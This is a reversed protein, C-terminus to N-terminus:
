PNSGAAATAQSRLREAITEEVSADRSERYIANHFLHLKNLLYLLQMKESESLNGATLTAVQGMGSFSAFLVGRGKGTLSLRKSRKDTEDDRQEVLGNKLLRKIIEIGTTKEHLHQDILETKTLSGRANLVALYTFDDATVLPSHELMKKSYSRSYRYLYSILKGLVSDVTENATMMQAARSPDGIKKGLLTQNLWAAFNVLNQAEPRTTEQEFQEILLITQKVLEYKDMRLFLYM